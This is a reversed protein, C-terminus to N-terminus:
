REPPDRLLVRIDFGHALHIALNAVLKSMLGDSKKTLAARVQEAIKPRHQELWEKIAKGVEEQITAQIAEEVMTQNSYRDKAPARLARDVIERIMHDSHKALADALAARIHGDIIEKPIEFKATMEAM